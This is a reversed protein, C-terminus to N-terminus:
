SRESLKRRKGIGLQKVLVDFRRWGHCRAARVDFGRRVCDPRRIQRIRGLRQLGWHRGFRHRVSGRPEPARPYDRRLLWTGRFNGRSSSFYIRKAHRNVLLVISAM